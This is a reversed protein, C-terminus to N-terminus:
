IQLPIACESNSSDPYTIGEPEEESSDATFLRMKVIGKVIIKGPHKVKGM